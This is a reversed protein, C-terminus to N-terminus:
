FLCNKNPPTPFVVDIQWNKKLSTVSIALYYQTEVISLTSFCFDLFKIFALVPPPHIRM